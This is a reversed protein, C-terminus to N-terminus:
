KLILSSTKPTAKRKKTYIQSIQLLIKYRQLEFNKIRYAIGM